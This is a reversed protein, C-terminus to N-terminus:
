TIPHKIAIAVLEEARRMPAFSDEEVWRRIESEPFQAQGHKARIRNSWEYAWGLSMYSDVLSVDSFGAKVLLRPLAEPSFIVLHRPPELGIWGQGFRKHGLSDINPTAVWVRGGPRLVRLCEKLIQLPSHVHELVHDMTIVDVRNDPFQALSSRVDLGRKRCLNAAAPDTEVGFTAWGCETMKALFDGSGCGFDLIRTGRMKDLHRVSYDVGARRASFVTNLLIGGLPISPRRNGGIIKNLYNNRIGCRLFAVPNRLTPEKAENGSHTYYGGQYALGIAKPSLRPSLFASNCNKCQRLTWRGAVIGFAHDALADYLVVNQATQCSPCERIEELDGTSVEIPGTSM